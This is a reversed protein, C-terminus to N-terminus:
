QKSPLYTKGATICLSAIFIHTVRHMNLVAMYGCLTFAEALEERNNDLLRKPHSWKM